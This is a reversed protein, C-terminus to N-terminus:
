AKKLLQGSVLSKVVWEMLELPVYVKLLDSHMLLVELLLVM